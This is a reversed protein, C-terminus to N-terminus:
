PDNSILPAERHSSASAHNVPAVFTVMGLVVMLALLPNLIRSRKMDQTMEKTDERWSFPTCPDGQRPNPTHRGISERDEFPACPDGQRPDPPTGWKDGGGWKQSINARLAMVALVRTM